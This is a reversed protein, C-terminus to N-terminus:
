LFILATAVPVDTAIDETVEVCNVKVTVLALLLPAVFVKVQCFTLTRGFAPVGSALPLRVRLPVALTIPRGLPALRPTNRSTGPAALRSARCVWGDALANAPTAKAWCGTM